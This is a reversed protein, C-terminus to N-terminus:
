VYDVQFAKICFRVKVLDFWNELKGTLFPSKYIVMERRLHTEWSRNPISDRIILNNASKRM